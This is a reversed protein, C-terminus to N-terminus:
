GLHVKPDTWICHLGLDDKNYLTLTSYVVTYTVPKMMELAQSELNLMFFRSLIGSTKYSKLHLENEKM